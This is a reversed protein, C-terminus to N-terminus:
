EGMFFNNDILSLYNEEDSKELGVIVEADEEKNVVTIENSHILIKLYDDISLKPNFLNENDSFTEISSNIKLVKKEVSLLAYNLSIENSNLDHRFVLNKSDYLKVKQGMESLLMIGTFVTDIEKFPVGSFSNISLNVSKVDNEKATKFDVDIYEAANSHTIDGSHIVGKGKYHSNWGVHFKGGDQLHALAHLDIDIRQKDNWYTFFRAYKAEEPIRIAIGSQIYGGEPNKDTIEINSCKFDVNNDRIFVKKGFLSEVKKSKLNGYLASLFVNELGDVMEPKMHNLASVISQTKLENGISKFDSIMEELNAGLKLLRNAQRFYVGPRKLLMDRVKGLNKESYAAELMQNWSYLKGNKLSYIVEAAEPNKSFKNYSLYDILAVNRNISRKTGKKGLFTKSWKNSALNEEISFLPFKEILEVLGRKLSTKLHKYKNMKVLAETLDMVDGPHKLIKELESIVRYRDQLSGNLLTEGFIAAINEKFPIDEIPQRNLRKAIKQSIELEKPLLREKKGILNEIVVKNVEEPLLYDLIKLDVLQKDEVREMIEETEPLWGKQVEKNTMSELGYTSIYHVLQHARFEAESMELVQIPFNPYMPSVEIEPEFAKVKQYLPTLKPNKMYDHALRAVGEKKLDYGLANLNEKDILAKKIAEELSIEGNSIISNPNSAEVIRLESFLLKNLNEM